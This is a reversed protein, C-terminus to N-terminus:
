FGINVYRLLFKWDVTEAPDGTLVIELTNTNIQLDVGWDSSSNSGINNAVVNLIVPSGFNAIAADINWASVAGASTAAIAQINFNYASNNVLTFIGSSTPTDDITSISFTQSLLSQVGDITNLAKQLTDDTHSLVGDFTSTDVPIDSALHDHQDITQLARQLTIDDTSLIGSYSIFETAGDITGLSLLNYNVTVNGTFYAETADLTLAPIPATGNASLPNDAAITLNWKAVGPDFDGTYSSLIYNEGIPIHYDNPIFPRLEIRGGYYKSVIVNGNFKSEEADVFLEPLTGTQNLGYSDEGAIMLKHPTLGSSTTVAGSKIYNYESEILNPYGALSIWGGSYSTTNYEVEPSGFWNKHYWHNELRTIDLSSGGSTSSPVYQIYKLLGIAM